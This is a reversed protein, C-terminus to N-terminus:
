DVCKVHIVKFQDSFDMLDLTPLQNFSCFKNFVTYLSGENACAVVCSQVMYFQKIYFIVTSYPNLLKCCHRVHDFVQARGYMCSGRTINLLWQSEIQRDCWWVVMTVMWCCIQLCICFGAFSVAQEASNHLWDGSLPLISFCWNFHYLIWRLSHFIPRNIM